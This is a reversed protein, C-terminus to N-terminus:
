IEVKKWKAMNNTFDKPPLSKDNRNMPPSKPKQILPTRKSVEEEPIQNDEESLLIECLRIRKVISKSVISMKKGEFTYNLFFVDPKKDDFVYVDLLKSASILKYDDIIKSLYSKGNVAYRLRYNKPLL